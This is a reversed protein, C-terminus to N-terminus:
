IHDRGGFLRLIFRVRDRRMNIAPQPTALTGPAANPLELLAAERKRQLAAAGELAEAVIQSRLETKTADEVQAGATRGALVIPVMPTLVAAKSAAEMTADVAGAPISNAAALEPVADAYFGNQAIALGSLVYCSHYLDAPKPPKDRLGGTRTDTCCAAVFGCLLEQDFLYDGRADDAAVADGAVQVDTGLLQAQLTAATSISVRASASASARSADILNLAAFVSAMWYSYCGDALKQTRGDFGGSTAHQRMASWFRLRDLNVIRDVGDCLRERANPPSQAARLQLMLVLASMGCSTYGGHGESGNDRGCGLGGDFTQCAGVYTAADAGRRPFFLKRSDLNLLTAIVAACYSARLDAEGGRFM